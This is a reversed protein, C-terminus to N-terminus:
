PSLSRAIFESYVPPIAQALAKAGMWDIGMAARWSELTGSLMGPWAGRRGHPHGYVGVVPWSHDCKAPSLVLGSSLEFIRHRRLPLDFMSGCLMLDRRLPAGPVNEIVFTIGSALLRERIPEIMDPQNSRDSILGGTIWRQCPPSAWVLDFNELPYQLADAQIFEFPYDHQPETDVGVMEYGAHHLGMSAGGAGCFLDIAKM